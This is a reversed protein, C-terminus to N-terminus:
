EIVEAANGHYLAIASRLRDFANYYGEDPGDYRGFFAKCYLKVAMLVRPDTSLAGADVGAGELEMVAASILDQIEADYAKSKVRLALKVAELM